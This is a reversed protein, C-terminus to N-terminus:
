DSIEEQQENVLDAISKKFGLDIESKEKWGEMVQLWLKQSGTRGKRASTYISFLVDNTLVRLPHEVPEFEIEKVHKEITTVSIDVEDSIEVITPCRRLEKALVIYAQQILSQNTQWTKNKKDAM